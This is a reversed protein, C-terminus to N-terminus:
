KDSDYGETELRHAGKHENQISRLLVPPAIPALLLLLPKVNKQSVVMPSLLSSGSSVRGLAFAFM